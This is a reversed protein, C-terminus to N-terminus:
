EVVVTKKDQPPDECTTKGLVEKSVKLIHQSNVTWWTEPDETEVMGSLVAKFSKMGKRGKTERVKDQVDETTKGEKGRRM